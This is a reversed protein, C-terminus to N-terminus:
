QGDHLLRWIVFVAFGFIAVSALVLLIEFAIVMATM